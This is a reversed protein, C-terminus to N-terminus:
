TASTSSTRAPSSPVDIWGGTRRDVVELGGVGDQFLITLSGWDSHPGKRYQEPLPPHDVPPYYNATLNTIHEDVKDDFHHEDLGLGIAFLRLLETALVEMAAYYELWVERLDAPRDPWINPAGWLALADGLGAREGIGPEGLRSMTFMECLDPSTTVDEAASVNSATRFFGRLAPSEPPCDYQAKWEDPQDFLEITTRHIREILDPDVGHGAVVLFGSERCVADITAAVARREAPDGSRAGALDIVPIYDSPPSPVLPPGPCSGLTSREGVRWTGRSATGNTRVASDSVSAPVIVAALRRPRGPRPPLHGHDGRADVAGPDVFRRWGLITDSAVFLAAGGIAWANGAAAAAVAMSSIILLYAVVAGGLAPDERRAAAVIRRGATAILVAVAGVAVACAWWRWDDAAIFGATYALHGLLFAALGFVFRRDDLLLVDGALSCVLAVVFWARM